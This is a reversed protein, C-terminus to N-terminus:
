TSIAFVRIVEPVWVGDGDTGAHVPVGLLDSIQTGVMRKVREIENLSVSVCGDILGVKAVVHGLILTDFKDEHIQICGRGCLELYEDSNTRIWADAAWPTDFALEKDKLKLVWASKKEVWAVPDGDEDFVPSDKYRAQTEVVTDEKVLVEEASMGVLITVEDEYYDDCKLMHVGGTLIFKKLLPPYRRNLYIKVAFPTPPIRVRGIAL